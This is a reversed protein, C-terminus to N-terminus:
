RRVYFIKTMHYEPKSLITICMVGLGSVVIQPDCLSNSRAPISGAVRQAVALQGAVAGVTCDPIIHRIYNMNLFQRTPRTTAFAVAPCFTDPEIGPNLLTNVPSKGTKRFNRLLPM